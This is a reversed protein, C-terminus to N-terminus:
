VASIDSLDVFEIRPDLLQLEDLLDQVIDTEWKAKKIVFRNSTIEVMKNKAARIMMIIDTMKEDSVKGKSDKSAEIQTVFYKYIDEGMIEAAKIMKTISSGVEKKVPKMCDQVKQVRENEPEFECVQYLAVYDAKENKKLRKKVKEVEFLLSAPLKRIAPQADSKNISRAPAFIAFRADLKILDNFFNEYISHDFSRIRGKLIKDNCLRKMMKLAPLCENIIQEIEYFEIEKISRSGYGLEEYILNYLDIKLKKTAVEISEACDNQVVNTNKLIQLADVARVGDVSEQYEKQGELYQKRHRKSVDSNEQIEMALLSYKRPKTNKLTKDNM